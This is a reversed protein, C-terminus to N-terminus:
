NALQSNSSSAVILAAARVARAQPVTVRACVAGLIRDNVIAPVEARSACDVTPRRQARMSPRATVEARVFRAAHEAISSRRGRIGIRPRRSQRIRSVWHRRGLSVAGLQRPPRVRRRQGQLTADQSQIGCPTSAKKFPFAGPLWFKAPPQPFPAIRIPARLAEPRVEPPPEVM